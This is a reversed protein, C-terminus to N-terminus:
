KCDKYVQDVTGSGIRCSVESDGRFFTPFGEVKKCREDESVACDVIEINSKEGSKREYTAINEKMGECAGCGSMGIMVIKEPDTDIQRYKSVPPDWKLDIELKKLEREQMKQKDKLKELAPKPQPPTSDLYTHTGQSEHRSNIKELFWMYPNEKDQIWDGSMSTISSVITKANSKGSIDVNMHVVFTTLKIHQYITYCVKPTVVSKIVVWDDLFSEQQNCNKLLTSVLKQCRENREKKDM